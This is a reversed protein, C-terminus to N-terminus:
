LAAELAPMFSRASARVRVVRRGGFMPISKAGDALRAPDSALEDGSLGIVAFPDAPDDVSAAIIAQARESVLGADPGYLLVVPYAPDPRAVFAEAQAPKIATM